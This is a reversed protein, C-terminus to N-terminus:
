YPATFSELPAMSSVEAADFHRFGAKAASVVAQVVEAAVGDSDEPRPNKRWESGCGFAIGPIAHGSNLPLSDFPM